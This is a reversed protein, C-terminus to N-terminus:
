APLGDHRVIDELHDDWGARSKDFLHADPRNPVTSDLSGAPVVLLAGDMHHGPMASGCDTCFSKQHRTGPLKFTRVATSTSNSYGSGISSVFQFTDTWRRLQLASQEEFIEEFYRSCQNVYEPALQQGTSLTQPAVSFIIM